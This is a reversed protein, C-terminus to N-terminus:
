NKKRCSYTLGLEPPMETVGNIYGAQPTNSHSSSEADSSHLPTGSPWRSALTNGTQRSPQSARREEGRGKVREGRGTVEFSFSPHSEELLTFSLDAWSLLVPLTPLTLPPANRFLLLMLLLNCPLRARRWNVNM